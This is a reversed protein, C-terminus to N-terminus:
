DQKTLPRCSDRIILEPKLVIKEPPLTVNGKIRKLLIEMSINAIKKIPQSITTLPPTIVEAIPNNDFGVISINEPVNLKRNFVARMAGVAMMDGCAFVATPPKPLDILKEMATKGGSFRLNGSVIFEKNPEINNDKLAELYGNTREIFLDVKPPGAICGIERHGISILYNTAQYGGYFNDVKIIDANAEIGIRDVLVFPINFDTLQDFTSQNNRASIFVIGDVMMNGLTDLCMSQKKIDDDSNCHIVTYGNKLGINEFHRSIEAFFLNTIDPVILGITRTQGIRLSRALYNPKYEVEEMAIRVREKLEDSVFRRGTISYSVTAISVGAKKAVDNITAM